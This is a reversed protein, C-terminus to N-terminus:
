KIVTTAGWRGIIATISTIGTIIFAALMLAEDTTVVSFGEKIWRSVIVIVGALAVTAGGGSATITNSQYWQKSGEM